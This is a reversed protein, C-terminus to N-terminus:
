SNVLDKDTEEFQKMHNEIQMTKPLQAKEVIPTQSKMGEEIEKNYETMM